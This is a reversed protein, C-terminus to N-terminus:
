YNGGEWKPYEESSGPVVRQTVWERGNSLIYHRHKGDDALVTVKSGPAIKQRDISKLEDDTNCVIEKYRANYVNGNKTVTYM